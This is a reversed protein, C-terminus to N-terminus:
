IPITIDLIVVSAVIYLYLMCNTYLHKEMQILPTRVSTLTNRTNLKKFGAKNIIDATAQNDPTFSVSQGTQIRARVQAAAM